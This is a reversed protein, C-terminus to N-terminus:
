ETIPPAPEPLVGMERDLTECQRERNIQSIVIGEEPISGMARYIARLSAVSAVGTVVWEPPSQPVDSYNVVMEVALIGAFGGLLSTLNQRWNRNEAQILAETDANEYLARYSAVREAKREQRKSM